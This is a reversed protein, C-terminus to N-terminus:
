KSGELEQKDVACIIEEKLFITTYKLPTCTSLVAEMLEDSAQCDDCIMGFAAIKVTSDEPTTFYENVIKIAQSTMTASAYM